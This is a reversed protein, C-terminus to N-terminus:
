MLLMASKCLKLVQMVKSETLIKSTKERMKNRGSEDTMEHASGSPSLPGSGRSFRLSVLLNGYSNATPGVVQFFNSGM